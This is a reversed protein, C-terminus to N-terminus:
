AHHSPESAHIAQPQEEGGHGADSGRSDDTDAYLLNVPSGKRIGLLTAADGGNVAIEVFGTSAIVAVPDGDAVDAYTRHIGELRASGVYIKTRRRESSTLEGAHDATINTVCNGFRDVHVIWGRIGQDDVIPLAWHLPQLVDTRTGLSGLRVGTALHAAAPAFIDRGHFTASPEETRWFRRNDLVVIEDPKQQDLILPIVGNDPGVFHTDGVRVAVSRRASGVGPDVVVVHVSDAPLYPLTARLVFAAEMVDQPAVEHSVDLLRAHTGAVSMIVAKMAAAYADRVGFDTTLTILRPQM